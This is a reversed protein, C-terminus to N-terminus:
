GQSPLVEEWTDWLSILELRCSKSNGVTNLMRIDTGPLNFFCEEDTSNLFDIAKVVYEIFKHSKYINIDFTSKLFNLYLDNYGGTSFVSVNRGLLIVYNLCSCIAQNLYRQM